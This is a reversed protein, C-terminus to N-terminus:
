RILRVSIKVRHIQSESCNISINTGRKVRDETDILRLETLVLGTCIGACRARKQSCRTGRRNYRYMSDRRELATHVPNEHRAQSHMAPPPPVVTHRYDFLRKWVKSWRAARFEESVHECVPDLESVREFLRLFLSQAKFFLKNLKKQM